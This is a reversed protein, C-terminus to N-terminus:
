FTIDLAYFEWTKHLKPSIETPLGVRLKQKKNKNKQKKNKKNKKKKKKKKNTQKNKKNKKIKNKIKKLPQNRFEFRCSIM